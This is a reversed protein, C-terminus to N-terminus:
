KYAKGRSVIRHVAVVQRNDLLEFVVRKGGVRLRYFGALRGTLFRVHRHSRPDDDGELERLVSRIRDKEKRNLRNYDKVAHPFLEISWSM